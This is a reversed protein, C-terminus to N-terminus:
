WCCGEDGQGRYGVCVEFRGERQGRRGGKIPGRLSWCVVSGILTACSLEWRLLFVTRFSYVLEKSMIIRCSGGQNLILELLPVTWSCPQGPVGMAGVVVRWLGSGEGIDLSAWVKGDGEENFVRVYLDEVNELKALGGGGNNIDVVVGWGFAVGDYEFGRAYRSM